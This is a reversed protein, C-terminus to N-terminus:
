RKAKAFALYKGDGAAFPRSGWEKLLAAFRAHAADLEGADYDVAAELYEMTADPQGPRDYFPRLRKLWARAAAHDSAARAITVGNRALRMAWEANAEADALGYAQEIRALATAFHGGKMAVGAEAQLAAIQEVSQSM